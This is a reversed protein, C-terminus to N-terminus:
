KEKITMESSQCTKVELALALEDARLLRNRVKSDIVVCVIRNIRNVLTKELHKIECSRSLLKLRM